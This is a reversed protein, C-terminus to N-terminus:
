LTDMIKTKAEGLVLENLSKYYSEPENIENESKAPISLLLNDNLIM